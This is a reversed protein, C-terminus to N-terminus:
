KNVFVALEPHLFRRFWMNIWAQRLMENLSPYNWASSESIIATIKIYSNRNNSVKNTIKTMLLNDWHSYLIANFDYDLELYKNNVGQLKLIYKTLM